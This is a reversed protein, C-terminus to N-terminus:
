CVKQTFLLMILIVMAVRLLFRLAKAWPRSGMLM